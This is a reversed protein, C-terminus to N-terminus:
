PLCQLFSDNKGVFDGLLQLGTFLACLTSISLDDVNALAKICCSLFCLVCQFLIYLCQKTVEAVPFWCNKFDSEM